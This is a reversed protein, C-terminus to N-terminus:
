PAEKRQEDRLRSLIRATELSLHCHWMTDPNNRKETEDWGEVSEIQHAILEDLSPTKFYKLIPLIEEGDLRRRIEQPLELSASM